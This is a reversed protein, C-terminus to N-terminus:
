SWNWRHNSRILGLSYINGAGILIGCAFFFIRIPSLCLSRPFLPLLPLLLKAHLIYPCATKNRKERKAM